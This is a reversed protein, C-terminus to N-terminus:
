RRLRQEAEGPTIEGRELQDLIEERQLCTSIEVMKLQGSIQNLRNKITPYSVGFSQEMAKISGHSRIFEAIFVQDEFSLRALLPLEFRGEIQIDDEPLTVRTVLVASSGVLRTLTQWDQSM